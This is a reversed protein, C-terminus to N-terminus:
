DRFKKPTLGTHKKFQKFFNQQSGFGAKSSIDSISLEGKSIMSKAKEVKFGNLYESFSEGLDKKFLKGIHDSCVGLERCILELTLSRHYNLNIYELVEKLRSNLDGLDNNNGNKVETFNPDFVNQIRVILGDIEYPKHVYGSVKLDACQEAYSLCSKGTVVIVPVKHGADRITKLFELGNMSPMVIDLIVCDIHGSNLKELAEEGDLATIVKFHDGLLIAGSELLRPEDDVFLIKKKRM